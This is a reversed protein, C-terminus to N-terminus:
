EQQLMMGQVRGAIQIFFSLGPSMLLGPKNKKIMTILRVIVIVIVDKVVIMEVIVVVHDM